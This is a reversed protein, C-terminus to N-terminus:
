RICNHMHLQLIYTSDITQEGQVILRSTNQGYIMGTENSVVCVITLNSHATLTLNKQRISESLSESIFSRNVAPPYTTLSFTPWSEIRATTTCSFIVVTGKSVAVQGVPRLSLEGQICDASLELLLCCMTAIKCLIGM